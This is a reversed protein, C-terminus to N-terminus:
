QDISIRYIWSVANAAGGRGILITPEANSDPDPDPVRMSQIAFDSGSKWRAASSSWVFKGPEEQTVTVNEVRLANKITTAVDDTLLFGAFHVFGHSWIEPRNNWSISLEGSALKCLYGTTEDESLPGEVSVISGSADPGVATPIESGELKLGPPAYLSDSGFSFFVGRFSHVEVPLGVGPQTADVVVATRDYFLSVKKADGCDVGHLVIKYDDNDTRYADRVLKEIRAGGSYQDWIKAHPQTASLTKMKGGM